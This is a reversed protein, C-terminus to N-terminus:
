KEKEKNNNKASDIVDIENKGGHFFVLSYKYARMETVTLLQLSTAFLFKNLQFIHCGKMIVTAYSMQMSAVSPFSCAYVM